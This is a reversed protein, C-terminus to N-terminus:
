STVIVCDDANFYLRVAAGRLRTPQGVNKEVVAIRQGSKLAVLLHLDAALPACDMVVAELVNQYSQMNGNKSSANQVVIREPRICAWVV